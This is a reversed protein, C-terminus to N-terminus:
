VNVLTHLNVGTLYYFTDADANGAAGANKQTYSDAMVHYRIIVNALLYAIQASTLSGSTTLTSFFELRIQVAQPSGPRLITNNSTTLLEGASNFYYAIYATDPSLPNEIVLAPNFPLMPTTIRSTKTPDDAGTTENLGINTYNGPIRGGSFSVAHSDLSYNFAQSTKRMTVFGSLVPEALAHVKRPRFAYEVRELSQPNYGELDQFAMTAETNVCHMLGIGSTFASCDAVIMGVHAVHKYAGGDVKAFSDDPLSNWEEDTYRWFVVDGTRLQSGNGIEFLMNESEAMEYIDSAWRILGDPNRTPKTRYQRSFATRPTIDGAFAASFPVGMLSLLVFCSCDLRDRRTYTGAPDLPTGHIDQPNNTRYNGYEINHGAINWASTQYSQMANYIVALADSTLTQNQMYGINPNVDADEMIEMIRDLLTSLEGYMTTLAAYNQDLTDIDAMADRLGNQLETISARVADMDLAAYEQEIEKLKQIIWDLNLDHYNTYPWGHEFLGM